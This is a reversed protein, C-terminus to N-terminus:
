RGYYFEGEMNHVMKLVAQRQALAYNQETDDCLYSYIKGTYRFGDADKITVITKKIGGEIKECASVVSYNITKHELM